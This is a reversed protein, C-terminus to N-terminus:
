PCHASRRRKLEADLFELERDLAQVLNQNVAAKNGRWGRRLERARLNAAYDSAREINRTSVQKFDLANAVRDYNEAWLRHSREQASEEVSASRAPKSAPARGEQRDDTKM